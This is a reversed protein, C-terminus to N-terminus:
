FLSIKFGGRLYLNAERNLLFVDVRKDDRLKGEQEISGGLLTYFSMIKSLNFQYGVAGVITSLSIRSGIRGDPLLIDDQINIFYGDLLLAMQLTHRDSIHYKFNSRPIGLTYSWNPHFRRYYSILPLPFPLGTTSNFSLGLVLRFPIDADMREKWLTATANIFFDDKLVGNTFNSALRPTAIAILRWNENWKTIYGLNMDVVHLRTLQEVDFPQPRSFDVDFRNYEGGIVFYNDNALKIPANLVIKYRSTGIGSSNEPIRLYDIRLLDTSQTWGLTCILTCCFLVLVLRKQMM